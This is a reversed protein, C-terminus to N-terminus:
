AKVAEIAAADSELSKALSEIAEGLMDQQAYLDSLWDAEDAYSCGGLYESASHAGYSVRCEVQFWAWDDGSDIRSLIEDECEKDFADDGSAMVNGRVPIDCPQYIWEITARAKLHGRDIKM